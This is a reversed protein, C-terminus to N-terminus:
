GRSCNIPIRTCSKVTRSRAQNRSMRTASSISSWKIGASFGAGGRGRLGSAKVEERVFEQPSQKKGDPLEKAPLALTKRLTEYGGHRLYCELDNSYGPTDAHKLVLRYEQPM